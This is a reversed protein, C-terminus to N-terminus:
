RLPTDTKTTLGVGPVFADFRGVPGTAKAGDESAMDLYQNVKKRLGAIDGKCVYGRVGHAKVSERLSDEDNSSHFVIQINDAECYSHILSVLRDGALAPM